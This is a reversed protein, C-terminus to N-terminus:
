AFKRDIMTIDKAYERYTEEALTPVTKLITTFEERPAIPVVTVECGFISEELLSHNKQPRPNTYRHLLDPTPMKMIPPPEVRVQGESSSKSGLHPKRRGKRLKSPDFNEPKGRYHPALKAVEESTYVHKDSMKVLSNQSTSQHNVNQTKRNKNGFQSWVSLKMFM